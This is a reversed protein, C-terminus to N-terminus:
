SAKTISNVNSVKINWFGKVRYPILHQRLVKRLNPGFSESTLPIEDDLELDSSPPIEEPGGQGVERLEKGALSAGWAFKDVKMPFTNPNKILVQFFAVGNKGGDTSAVQPNHAVVEPLVPLGLEREGGYTFSTGGIM